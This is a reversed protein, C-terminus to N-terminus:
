GYIKSYRRFPSVDEERYVVLDCRNNIYHEVSRDHRSNFSFATIPSWDAKLLVKPLKDNSIYVIKTYSDVWNNLKRDKILQNFGASSDDVRFLVSQCEAPMIDRFYNIMEYLQNECRNKDLLVIMPFRDLDWISSLIENTTHESPRCLIDVEKRYAIKEILSNPEKTDYLNFGYRFKRDNLKIINENDTNGVEERIINM